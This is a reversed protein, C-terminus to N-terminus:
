PPSALARCGGAVFYGLLPFAPLPLPRRPDSAGCHHAGTCCNAGTAPM